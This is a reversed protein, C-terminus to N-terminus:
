AWHLRDDRHGTHRLPDDHAANYDQQRPVHRVSLSAVLSSPNSAHSSYSYTRRLMLLVQVSLELILVSISEFVIWERCTFPYANKVSCVVPETPSSVYPSSVCMLAVLSYYRAIFYFPKASAWPTRNFRSYADIAVVCVSM